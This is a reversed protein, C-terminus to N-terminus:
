SAFSALLAVRVGRLETAMSPRRCAVGIWADARTVRELLPTSYDLPQHVQLQGLKPARSPPMARTAGRAVGGCQALRRGPLFVEGFIEPRRPPAAAARELTTRRTCSATAPLLRAAEGRWRRRMRLAQRRDAAWRLLQRRGTTTATRSQQDHCHPGRRHGKRRRVDGYSFMRPRRRREWGGGGRQRRRRRALAFVAEAGGDSRWATPRPVWTCGRRSCCGTAVAERLEMPATEAGSLASQGQGGHGDRGGAGVRRGRLHRSCCTRITTWPRRRQKSAM